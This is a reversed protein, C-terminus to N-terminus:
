EEDVPQVIINVLLGGKIQILEFLPWADIPTFKASRKLNVGISAEWM